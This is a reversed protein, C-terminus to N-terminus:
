SFHDVEREHGVFYTGKPLTLTNHEEHTLTGDKKLSLYLGKEGQKIEMSRCNLIHKHGTTSGEALVISVDHKVTKGKIESAKVETSTIIKGEKDHWTILIFDHAELKNM